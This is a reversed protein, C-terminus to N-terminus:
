QGGTPRFGFRHLVAQGQPSQLFDRFQVATDHNKCGSLITGGQELPPYLDLPILFYRGKDKM